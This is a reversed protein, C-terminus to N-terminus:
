PINTACRFGIARDATAPLVRENHSSSSKFHNGKIVKRSGDSEDVWESVNGALDYIGEPTMDQASRQVAQTDDPATIEEDSPWELNQAAQEWESGTPLRKKAFQCYANAQNWNLWVVPYDKFQPHSYYEGHVLTTTNQPADCAGAEVCKKYAANSVEHIDLCLKGGSILGMEDPCSVNTADLAVTPVEDPPKTASIATAENKNENSDVQEGPSGLFVVGGIAAVIVLLLGMVLVLWGRSKEPTPSPPLPDVPPSLLQRLAAAMESASEFREDPNKALAKNIVGDCGRPLDPKVTLINPIPEHMHKYILAATTDADYPRQGTLLQFLIAGLSYIDSRGDIDKEGRGQEPSMYFPTGIIMGTLSLGTTSQSLLKAIGFDAIYPNGQQDLLINGPKLDRHVVGRQHALDVAPALREILSTANALEVVGHRLHDALSGGPILAMVLYSQGNQQGFDYVPVIAPHQLSAIVQAERQFRQLFQSEHSLHAGMVKIAVERKFQPDYARYVVAMAGSGLQELIQYRGFQKMM